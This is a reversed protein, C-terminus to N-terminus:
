SALLFIVRTTPVKSCSTGADDGCTEESSCPSLPHRLHEPWSKRTAIKSADTNQMFSSAVTGDCALVDESFFELIV